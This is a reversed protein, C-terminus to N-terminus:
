ILVKRKHSVISLVVATLSILTAALFILGYAAPSPYSGAIGNITEQNTQQFMAALSPGISQGVLNLLLTMGLAVGTFQIPSSLLVINFGGVFALSLGASIISLTLAIMFETSHFFLLSVFGITSVITGIATLRTNGVKNLIFGSFVTGVLLIIMFPLQVNAVVTADGGFGLPTPSRILIPMTQYVMFTCLGVILLILIAPLLKMNTILNLDILPFKARKEALIFLGLSVAAVAFLGVYEFATSDNHELFSIGILFATVTVALLLAGILDISVKPAKTSSTELEVLAKIHIFRFIVFALIIAVPLISFFTAHWGYNQIINAGALLGIVAGGSFTSSFLTQGIALKKEPLVDRIIGFAIPFMSIGIGQSIRAVLMVMFSNAFGGVLLGFSYVVMIVLLMKKKGYVDSLKGVIPTAVAGAILYSSLIWSSTNYNIKFDKIFDPIAPLIMTEAYMTILGLCSLIILTMWAFRTIKDQEMTM